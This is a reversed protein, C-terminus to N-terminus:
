HDARVLPEGDITITPDEYNGDLLELEEKEWCLICTGAGHHWRDPLDVWNSLLSAFDQRTVGEHGCDICEATPPVLGESIIHNKFAMRKLDLYDEVLYTGVM